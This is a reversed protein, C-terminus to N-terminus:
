MQHEGNQDQVSSRQVLNELHRGQDPVKHLVFSQVMFDAKQVEKGHMVPTIVHVIIVVILIHLKWELLKLDLM